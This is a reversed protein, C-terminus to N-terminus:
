GIVVKAHQNLLLKVHSPMATPKFVAGSEAFTTSFNALDTKEYYQVLLICAQEIDYPLDRPTEATHDKPLVYGAKYTIEIPGEREEDLEVYTSHNICDALEDATLATDDDTISVIESVPYNKVFVNKREGYHKETYTASKFKRGCYQEIVDSAANILREFIADRNTGTEQLYAKLTELTTLANDALPM